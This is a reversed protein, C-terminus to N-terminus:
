HKNPTQKQIHPVTEISTFSCKSIGKYLDSVDGFISSVPWSGKERHVYNVNTLDGRKETERVLGVDSLDFGSLLLLALADGSPGRSPM